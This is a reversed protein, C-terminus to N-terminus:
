ANKIAEQLQYLLKVAEYPIKNEGKWILMIKYLDYSNYKAYHIVNGYANGMPLCTSRCGYLREVINQLIDIECSIRQINDIAIPEIVIKGFPEISVIIRQNKKINGFSRRASKVVYNDNLICVIMNEVNAALDVKQQDYLAQEGSILVKEEGNENKWIIKPIIFHVSKFNERNKTLVVRIENSFPNFKKDSLALIENDTDCEVINDCELVENPVGNNPINSIQQSLYKYHYLYAKTDNERYILEKGQIVAPPWLPVIEDNQEILQYGKNQIYAIAEVTFAKVVFSYVNYNSSSWNINIIGKYFFSLGEIVPIKDNSFIILYEKKVVINSHLAVRYGGECNSHFINTGFNLGIIGWGWKQKVEAISHHMNKWEVKIWPSLSKVRYSSMNGVSYEEKKGDDNIVVKVNWMTLLDMNKKSIPPFCAKLQYKNKAYECLYLPIGGNTIYVKDIENYECTGTYGPCIMQQPTRHAISKHAFYDIRYNGKRVIIKELCYQCKYTYNSSAEEASIKKGNEDIGYEIAAM